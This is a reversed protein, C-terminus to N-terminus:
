HICVAVSEEPLQEGCSPHLSQDIVNNDQIRM